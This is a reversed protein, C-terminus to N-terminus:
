RYGQKLKKFGAKIKWRVAYYEIIEKVSLTLDISFLAVWQTKRYVWVLVPCKFTKLM